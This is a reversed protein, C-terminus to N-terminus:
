PSSNRRAVRPVPARFFEEASARGAEMLTEKEESTAEFNMPAIQSTKIVIIHTSWTKYLREEQHYYVSSCLRQIYQFINSIKIPNKELTDKYFTIGITTEKEEDTLM